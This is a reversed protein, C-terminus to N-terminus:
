HFSLCSFTFQLMCKRASSFDPKWNLLIMLLLHHDFYPHTIFLCVRFQFLITIALKYFCLDRM